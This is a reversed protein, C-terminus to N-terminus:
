RSNKGRAAASRAPRSGTIARMGTAPSTSQTSADSSASAPRAMWRPRTVASRVVSM